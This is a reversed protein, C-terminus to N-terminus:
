FRFLIIFNVLNLFTYKLHSWCLKIKLCEKRHSLLFILYVILIIKDTLFTEFGFIFVENFIFNLNCVLSSLGKAIM